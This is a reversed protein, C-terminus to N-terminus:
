PSFVRTRCPLNEGCGGDPGAKVRASRLRVKASPIIGVTAYQRCSASLYFLYNDAIYSPQEQNIFPYLLIKWLALTLFDTIYLGGSM